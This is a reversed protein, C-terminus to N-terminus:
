AGDYQPEGGRGDRNVHRRILADHLVHRWILVAACRDGHRLPSLLDGYLDHHHAHVHITKFVEDGVRRWQSPSPLETKSTLLLVGM